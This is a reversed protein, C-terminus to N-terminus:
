RERADGQPRLCVKEKEGEGGREREERKQDELFEKPRGTKERLRVNECSAKKEKREGIKKNWV